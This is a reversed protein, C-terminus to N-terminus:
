ESKVLVMFVFNEGVLIYLYTLMFIIISLTLISSELEKFRDIKINNANHQSNPNFERSRLERVGAWVSFGLSIYNM